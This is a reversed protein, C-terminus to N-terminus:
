DCNNKKHPNVFFVDFINQLELPLDYSQLHHEHLGEPEHFFTCHANAFL